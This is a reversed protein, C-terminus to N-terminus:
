TDKLFRKVANSVILWSLKSPFSIAYPRELLVNVSVHMM